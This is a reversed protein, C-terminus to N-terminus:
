FQYSIPFNFGYFTFSSNSGGSFISSITPNIGIKGINLYIGISSIAGFGFSAKSSHIDVYPPTNNNVISVYEKFSFVGIGFDSTLAVIKGKLKPSVGFYVGGGNIIYDHANVSAPNMFGNDIEDFSKMLISGLIIDLYKLKTPISIKLNVGNLKTEGNNTANSYKMNFYTDENLKNYMYLYGFEIKPRSKANELVKNQSLLQSELLIILFVLLLFKNIM